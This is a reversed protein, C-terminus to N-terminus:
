SNCTAELHGEIRESDDDAPSFIGSATLRNGEIEILPQAPGGRGSTWNGGMRMRQAEIVTGEASRVDGSQFSVSHVLMDNVDNRSVFIDFQEGDATEGRGVLTQIMDDDTEGSFDCVRVAFSYTDGGLTLTGEGHGADVAPASEGVAADHPEIDDVTDTNGCGIILLATCLALSATRLM